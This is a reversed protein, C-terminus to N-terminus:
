RDTLGRARRGLERTGFEMPRLTCYSVTMADRPVMPDSANPYVNFEWIEGTAQAESLERGTGCWAGEYRSHITVPSVSAGRFRWVVEVTAKVADPFPEGLREVHIVRGNFSTPFRDRLEQRSMEQCSCALASQPSLSALLALGTLLAIKIMPKALHDTERRLNQIWQRTRERGMAAWGEGRVGRVGGAM